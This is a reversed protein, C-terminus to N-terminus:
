EDNAPELHRFISRGVFERPRVRAFTAWNSGAIRGLGTAVATVIQLGEPTTGGVSLCAGEALCSGKVLAVDGLQLDLPRGTWAEDVLFCDTPSVKGLIDQRIRKPQILLLGKAKEQSLLGLGSRMHHILTGYGVGLWGSVTYVQRATPSDAVYGRVRFGHEVAPKPMLFFSAFANALREEETDASSNNNEDSDAIYQDIRTGHGFVHHGLEHAATTAQRGAPRLASVLIIPKNHAADNKVYMGEMSPVDVFRLEVELSEAADFCCLSANAAINLQMRLKLAARLSRRSLEERQDVTLKRTRNM